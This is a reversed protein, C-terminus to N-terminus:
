TETDVTWHVGLANGVATSANGAGSIEFSVDGSNTAVSSSCDVNAVLDRIQGNAAAPNYLTINKTGPKKTVSYRVTNRVTTAGATVAQFRHEGTNIGVNQAPTTNLFFSKEYYRQCMVLETSPPRYEFPTAVAGPELQVQAIDFTGSQQGLTNNRSNFSSGGEFWFIVQAKDDGNTGLTKGSISPFNIVATFKQFTTTLSVTFVAATVFASPSGGSGFDQTLEIAMNKNADAKAWFSLTYTQNSFRRVDEIHQVLVCYNSAGAVSTVVNRHFYSPEGPVTTQGLTFDQRSATYTTGASQSQFKDALFRIGSGSGLSIGRQWFDFNGNIIRNRFGAFQGGSIGFFLDGNNGLYSM